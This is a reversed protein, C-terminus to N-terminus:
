KKSSEEKKKAEIEKKANELTNKLWESDKYEEDFHEKFWKITNIHGKTRPEEAKHKGDKTDHKYVAEDKLKENYLNWYVDICKKGNNKDETNNKNTFIGCEQELYAQINNASYPNLLKEDETAIKVPKKKPEVPNITYGIAVYNKVVKLDEDNLLHMKVNVVKEAKNVEYHKAM